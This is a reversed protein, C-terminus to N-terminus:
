TKRRQITNSLSIMKSSFSYNFIHISFSVLFTLVMLLVVVDDDDVNGCRVQATAICTGTCTDDSTCAWSEYQTKLTQGLRYMVSAEIFQPATSTSVEMFETDVTAFVDKVAKMVTINTKALEYPGGTALGKCLSPEQGELTSLFSAKAELSSNTYDDPNIVNQSIKLIDEVEAATRVEISNYDVGVARRRRNASIQSVFMAFLNQLVRRPNCDPQCGDTMLLLSGKVVDKGSKDQM